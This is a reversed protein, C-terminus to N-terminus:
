RLNTTTLVRSSVVVGSYVSDATVHADDLLSSPEDVDLTPIMSRVDCSSLRWGAPGGCYLFLASHATIAFFSFAFLFLSFVSVSPLTGLGVFSTSHPAALRAATKKKHLGRAAGSAREKAWWWTVKAKHRGTELKSTENAKWSVGM